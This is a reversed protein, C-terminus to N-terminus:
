DAGYAWTARAFGAFPNASLPPFLGTAALHCGAVARPSPLSRSIHELRLGRNLHRIMIYLFFLFTFHVYFCLAFLSLLAHDREQPTRSLAHWLRGFSFTPRYGRCDVATTDHRTTLTGPRVQLTTLSTALSRSPHDLHCTSSLFGNIHIRIVLDSDVLKGDQVHSM